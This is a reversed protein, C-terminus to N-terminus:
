PLDAQVLMTRAQVLIALADVLIFRGAQDQATLPDTGEPYGRLGSAIEKSARRYALTLLVTMDRLEQVDAALSAGPSTM